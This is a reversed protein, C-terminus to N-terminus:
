NDLVEGLDGEGTNRTEEMLQEELSKVPTNSNDLVEGLDGEGINRTEEMLQEELSKTPVATNDNSQVKNHEEIEKEAQRDRLISDRVEQALEATLHSMADAIERRRADIEEDMERRIQPDKEKDRLDFVKGLKVINNSAKNYNYLLRRNAELKAREQEIHRKIQAEQKQYSELPTDKEVSRLGQLRSELYEIQAVNENIEDDLQSYYNTM